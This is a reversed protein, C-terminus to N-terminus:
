INVTHWFPTWGTNFFYQFFVLHNRKIMKVFINGTNLWSLPWDDKFTQPISKVKMSRNELQSKPVTRVYITNNGWFICFGYWHCYFFLMTCWCLLFIFFCESQCRTCRTKFHTHSSAFWIWNTNQALPWQKLNEPPDTM